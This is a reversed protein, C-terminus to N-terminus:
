DRAWFGYPFLGGGRQMQVGLGMLCGHRVGLGGVVDVGGVMAGM